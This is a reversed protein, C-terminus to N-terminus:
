ERRRGGPKESPSAERPGPRAPAAQYGGPDSPLQGGADIHGEEEDENWKGVDEGEALLTGDEGEGGEAGEDLSPTRIMDPDSEPGLGAKKTDKESNSSM